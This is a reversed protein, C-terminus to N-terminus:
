EAGVLYQQHVASWRLAPVLGGADLRDGDAFYSEVLEPGTVPPEVM